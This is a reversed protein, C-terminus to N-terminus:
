DIYEISKGPLLQPMTNGGVETDVVETDLIRIEDIRRLLQEKPEGRANKYCGEPHMISTVIIRRALLQRTGGKIEVRCAYRDLIRLLETLVMQSDRFDDLIVDEHGDYGDWWKNSVDKTYADPAMEYAMRSKGAGSGGCIWIVVPKWDRAKEFLSLVMPAAKLAPITSIAGSEVMSRLNQGEKVANKMSELDNRKGQQKRTGSEIFLNDKTCYDRNQVGDGKAKEIHAGYLAKKIAKFGRANKFEAYGQLHPTGCEGVEKGVVIYSCTDSFERVAELAAEDYNNWTFVINRLRDMKYLFM